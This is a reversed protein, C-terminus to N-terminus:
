SSRGSDLGEVLVMNTSTSQIRLDRLSAYADSNWWDLAGKVSGFEVVVLRGPRWDGELVQVPGGRALYRGGAAELGPSVAARYRSYMPEDHVNSVDVILYAPM